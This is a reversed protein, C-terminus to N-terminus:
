IEEEEAIDTYRRALSKLKASYLRISRDARRYRGACVAATIVLYVALGAAYLWGLKILMEKIGNLNINYFLTDVRLLVYLSFLVLFCLTYRVFSSIMHGAIYDSAYYSNIKFARGANRKEFAALSTMLRVKEQDVM